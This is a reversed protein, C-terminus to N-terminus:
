SDIDGMKLSAMVKVVHDPQAFLGNSFRGVVHRVFKASLFIVSLPKLQM